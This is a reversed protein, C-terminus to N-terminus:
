PANMKFFNEDKVEFAKQLRNMSYNFDTLLKEDAPRIKIAEKIALDIEKFTGAIKRELFKDEVDDLRKIMQFFYNYTQQSINPYLPQEKNLMTSLLDLIIFGNWEVVETFNNVMSPKVPSSHEYISVFWEGLEKAKANYSLKYTDNILGTMPMYVYQVLQGSTLDFRIVSQRGRTFYLFNSAGGLSDLMKSRIPLYPGFFPGHSLVFKHLNPASLIMSDKLISEIEAELGDEAKNITLFKNLRPSSQAFYFDDKPLKKIEENFDVSSQYAFELLSKSEKDYIMM